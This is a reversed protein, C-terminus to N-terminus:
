RAVVRAASVQLLRVLGPSVDGEATWGDSAFAKLRSIGAPGRAAEAGLKAIQQRAADARHDQESLVELLGDSLSASTGLDVATDGDVIVWQGTGAVPNIEQWSIHGAAACAAVYKLFTEDRCLAIDDVNVRGLPKSILGQRALEESIAELRAAGKEEPLVHPSPTISKRRDYEADLINVAPFSELAVLHRGTFVMVKDDIPLLGETHANSLTATQFNADNLAERVAASLSAGGARVPRGAQEDVNELWHAFVYNMDRVQRLNGAVDQQGNPDFVSLRAGRSRLERALELPTAGSRDLMDWISRDRLSVLPRVALNLLIDLTILQDHPEANPTVMVIRTAGRAEDVRWQLMELTSALGGADGYHEDWLDKELEDGPLPIYRQVPSENLKIRANDVTQKAALSQARLQELTGRWGNIVDRLEEAAALYRGTLESIRRRMEDAVEQELLAQRAALYDRQEIVPWRRNRNMSSEADLVTQQYSALDLPPLLALAASFQEGRAILTLLFSRAAALGGIRRNANMLAVVALRLARAWERASQEVDHALAEHMGPQGNGSWIATRSGWFSDVRREADRRVDSNEYETRIRRMGPFYDALNPTPPPHAIRDRPILWAVGPIILSSADHEKGFGEAVFSPVEQQVGGSALAATAGGVVFEEVRRKGEDEADSLLADLASETARYGFSRILPEWAYNITYSGFSSYRAHTGTLLNDVLNPYDRGFLAGSSPFVHAYIADAIAVPLGNEVDKYGELQSAEDGIDRSGDVLYCVDVAPVNLRISHGPRWQIEITRPANILRDLERLTARGSAQMKNFGDGSVVGGFAGPLVVFSITRVRVQGALAYRAHQLYSLVDLLVGAGAGGAISGVVFLQLDVHEAGVGRDAHALATFANMVQGLHQANQLQDYFFSIRGFQRIAAGETMFRVADVLEFKLAEDKPLWAQVTPWARREDDSEQIDAVIRGIPAALSLDETGPALTVGTPTTPRSNRDVDLARLQVPGRNTDYATRGAVDIGRGLAEWRQDNLLRQKLHALTWSGTGGLGVVLTALM